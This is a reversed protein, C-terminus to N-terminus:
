GIGEVVKEMEAATYCRMTLSRVNGQSGMWVALRSAAADDPADVLAIADYPGMTWLTERVRVKFKEAQARFKDARKTTVRFTTFPLERVADGIASKLADLSAHADKELPVSQALSFNAIGFIRALRTKVLKWPTENPLSIRIRGPLSEVQTVSLDRLVQRLNRVLRAEFFPRNRGKLALEHYHVIACRM